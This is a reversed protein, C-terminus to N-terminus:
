AAGSTDRCRLRGELTAVLSLAHRLIHPGIWDRAQTYDVPSAIREYCLLVGSTPDEGTRQDGIESWRVTPPVSIIGVQPVPIGKDPRHAQGMSPDFIIRLGGTNPVPLLAVMHGVFATADPPLQADPDDADPEVGLGVSWIDGLTEDPRPYRGHLDTFRRWGPSLFAAKVVVPEAQVGFPALALTAIRTAAICCNPQYHQQLLPAIAEALETVVAFLTTSRAPATM